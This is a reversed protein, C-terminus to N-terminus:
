DVIDSSKPLASLRVDGGRSMTEAEQDTAKWKKKKKPLVVQYESSFYWSFDVAESDKFEIKQSRKPKSSM